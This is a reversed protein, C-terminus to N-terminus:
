KRWTKNKTNYNSNFGGNKWKFHMTLIQNSKINTSQRKLKKIKLKSLTKFNRLNWKGKFKDLKKNKVNFNGKSFSLNFNRFNKKTFM